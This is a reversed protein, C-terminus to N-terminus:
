GGVFKQLETITELAEDKAIAEDRHCWEGDAARAAVEASFRATAAAAALATATADRDRNVLRLQTGGLLHDAHHRPLEDLLAVLVHAPMSVGNSWRTLDRVEEGIKRALAPVSQVNSRKMKRLVDALREALDQKSDTVHSM